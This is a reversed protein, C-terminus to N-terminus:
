QDPFMIKREDFIRHVKGRVHSVVDSPDFRGRIVNLLQWLTFCIFPASLSYGMFGKENRALVGFVIGGAAITLFCSAFYLKRLRARSKSRVRVEFRSHCIPCTLDIKNYGEVPVTFTERWTRYETLTVRGRGRNQYIEKEIACGLRISVMNPTIRRRQKTENTQGPPDSRIHSHCVGTGKM